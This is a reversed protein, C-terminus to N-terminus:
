VAVKVKAPRLIWEGMKYGPQVVEVVQGSVAGKGGPVSAVAEHWAPNFPVPAGNIIEVGFERLLQEMQRAVHSVGDVWAHDVLEAPVHQLLAQFNDALQLLPVIAEQRARALEAGQQAQRRRRWNHLEARARQWGELYEQERSARAGHARAAYIM